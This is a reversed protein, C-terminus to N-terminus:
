QRGSQTLFQALFVFYLSVANWNENTWLLISLSLHIFFSLHLLIYYASHYYEICSIWFLFADVWDQLDSLVKYFCKHIFTLTQHESPPDDTWNLETWNSLQTSEKRGWSDWWTLGGQGDGVGPTWESEHGDLWQHLTM